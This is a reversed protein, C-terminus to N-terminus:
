RGRSRLVVINDRDALAEAGLYGLVGGIENSRVGVLKLCDESSYNVLARAIEVHSDSAAVLTVADQADFDGVVGVVGAPFLSKRQAGVAEVAGADLILSGQPALSLLWKKRGTVPRPAPLFTTGFNREAFLMPTPSIQGLSPSGAAAPSEESSTANLSAAGTFCSGPATSVVAPSRMLTAAEVAPAAADVQAVAAVARSPSSSRVSPQLTSLVACLASAAEGVTSTSSVVVTVGAATALQAAKLKTVMGGTGWQSGAGGSSSGVGSNRRRSSPVSGGNSAAAAPPPHSDSVVLPSVGMQMQKRLDQILHTPVVRIPTADPASRPDATYLSEVDTLLFLWQAGVMNSVLASLTDNDGVRLEQVAVTDNENVIPVVGLRLLELLTNRANLYQTRDGFADYTLLVQACRTNLVSFLDDYLAMLRVQGVAAAAQKGAISTPRARLGLRACGLGVAGSSVVIVNYGRSTMSVVAEVLRAIASVQIAGVKTDVLSSTGVKLVIISRDM